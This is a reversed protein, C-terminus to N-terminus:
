RWFDVWGHWCGGADPGLGNTKIPGGIDSIRKGGADILWVYITGIFPPSGDASLTFSYTGDWTTTVEPIDFRNGSGDGLVVRVGELGPSDSNHGDYVRAKIYVGGAHECGAQNAHWM